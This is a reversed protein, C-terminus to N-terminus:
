GGTATTAPRPWLRCRSNASTHGSATSLRALATRAPLDNGSASAPRPVRPGSGSRGANM